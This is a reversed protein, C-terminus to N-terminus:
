RRTGRGAPPTSRPTGAPLGALQQSCRAMEPVSLRHLCLSLAWPSFPPEERVRPAEPQWCPARQRPTGAAARQTCRLSATSTRPTRTPGPWSCDESSGPQAMIPLSTCRRRSTATTRLPRPVQDCDCLPQQPWIISLYVMNATRAISCEGAALVAAVMREHGRRCCIHLATDGDKTRSDLYRACAAESGHGGGRALLLRAVPLLAVAKCSSHLSTWGSRDPLDSAGADLLACVVEEHGALAAM